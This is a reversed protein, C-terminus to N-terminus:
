GDIKLDVLASPYAIADGHVCQVMVTQQICKTTDVLSARAISTKSEMNLLVQVDRGNLKGDHLVLQKSSGKMVPKSTAKKTPSKREPCTVAMHGYKKCEWCQIDGKFNFQVGIAATPKSNSQGSSGSRSPTPATSKPPDRTPQGAEAKHALEYNYAM